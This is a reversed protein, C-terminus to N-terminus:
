RDRERRQWYSMRDIKDELRTLRAKVDDMSNKLVIIEPNCIQTTNEGFLKEKIQPFVTYLAFFIILVDKIRRYFPDHTFPNTM